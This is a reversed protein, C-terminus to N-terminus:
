FIEDLTNTFKEVLVQMSFEEEHKIYLSEAYDEWRESNEICSIIKEKLELANGSEFVEGTIENIILENAVGTGDSVIIKNKFQSAENIVLGWAEVARIKKSRISALIVLNAKTFLVNRTKEDYTTGTVCVSDSLKKDSIIKQLRERDPGTGAFIFKVNKYKNLVEVAANLITEQGKFSVLRGPCVIKFAKDDDLWPIAHTISNSDSFEKIKPVANPVIVIDNKNAGLGILYEAHKKGFSFIKDSKKCIIRELPKTLMRRPHRIDCWQENWLIFKKKYLCSFLFGLYTIGYGLDTSIIVDPNEKKLFSWLDLPIELDQMKPIRIYEGYYISGMKDRTNINERLCYFLIDYKEQLSKFLPVRFPKIENHLLVIKM